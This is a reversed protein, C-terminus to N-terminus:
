PTQELDWRVNWSASDGQSANNADTPMQVLLRVCTAEGPALDVVPYMNNVTSNIYGFNKVVHNPIGTLPAVSSCQGNSSPGYQIIEIRAQAGFEGNNNGPSNDGCNASPNYGPVLPNIGEAVAESKATCGDEHNVLDKMTLSLKGNPVSDGDNSAIYFDVSKEMGPALTMNEQTLLGDGVNLILHGAGAQDPGTQAFDSWSAWTGGGAAIAVVATGALAGKLIKKNMENDRGEDGTPVDIGRQDRDNQQGRGEDAPVTRPM